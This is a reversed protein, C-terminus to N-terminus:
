TPMPVTSCPNIPKFLSIKRVIVNEFMFCIMGNDFCIKSSQTWLGGYEAVETAEEM